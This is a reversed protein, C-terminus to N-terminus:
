WSRLFTRRQLSAVPHHTLVAEREDKLEVLGSYTQVPIQMQLTRRMHTITLRNQSIRKYIDLDVKDTSNRFARDGEAEMYVIGNM